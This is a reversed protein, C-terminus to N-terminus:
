RIQWDYDCEDDYEYDSIRAEGERGRGDFIAVSLSNDIIM